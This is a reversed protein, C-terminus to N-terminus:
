GDLMFWIPVSSSAAANLSTPCRTNRPGVTAYFVAVIVPFWMVSAVLIAVLSVVAVGRGVVRFCRRSSYRIRATMFIFRCATPLAIDTGPGNRDIM